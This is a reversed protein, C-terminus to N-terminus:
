LSSRHIFSLDADPIFSIYVFFINVNLHLKSFYWDKKFIFSDYSVATPRLKSQLCFRLTINFTWYLRWYLGNIPILNNLTQILPTSIHVSLTVGTSHFIQKSNFLRGFTYCLVYQNVTKYSRWVCKLYVVLINIVM